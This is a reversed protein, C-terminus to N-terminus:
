RRQSFNGSGSPVSNRCSKVSNSSGTARDFTMGPPLNVADFSTPQGTASVLYSSESGIDVPVPNLSSTIIARNVSIVLTAVVPHFAGPVSLSVNFTGSTGPTGSILGLTQDIHLGSPLSSASYSTANFNTTIQYSFTSGAPISPPNLSSTIRAAYISRAGDIDDAQLQDISSVYRNMIATVSQGADDPHALGLTHGFEHIAVRHFDYVYKRKKSDYQIPGRYSDWLLASNFLNDAEHMVSGSYFYVTVAIAPGYTQGYVTPSFFATNQGDRQSGGISSVTWSFKTLDIQQDWLALADAASSNFTTFGDQLHGSSPGTFAL